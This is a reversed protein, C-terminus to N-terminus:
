LKVIAVMSAERKALRVSGALVLSSVAFAALSKATPSGRASRPSRVSSADGFQTRLFASARETTGCESGREICSAPLCAGGHLKPLACDYAIGASKSCHLSSALLALFRWVATFFLMIQ